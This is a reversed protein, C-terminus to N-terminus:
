ARSIVFPSEIDTDWHTPNVLAGLNRCFHQASPHAGNAIYGDVRATHLGM